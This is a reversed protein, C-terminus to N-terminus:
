GRALEGVRSVVERSFDALQSADDIYQSPKLMFTTFGRDLLEDIPELLADLGLVDDAGTFGGGVIAALEIEGPDRGAQAMAEWLGALEEPSPPAILFLGKAYRVTRRLANPHLSRGGIWLTPGGPRYPQPEIYADGFRFHKGDFSVPSGDRWLREWIELQEDLIEGRQHFPLGLIEYEERQWSVGPMVVLRGNSLLDLTALEKGLILPHRPPAIVSSAVLRIRSTLAAMASLILLGNPHPYRPDHNGEALWDRPNEPVGNVDSHPGLVLHEGVMVSDFGAEEAVVAMRALAPLDRADTMTWVESLLMMLKPERTRAVRSAPQAAPITM